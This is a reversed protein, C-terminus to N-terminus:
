NFPLMALKLPLKVAALALKLLKVTPLAVELITIVLPFRLAVPFRVAKFKKPLTTPLM